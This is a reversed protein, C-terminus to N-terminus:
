RPYLRPPSWLVGYTLVKTDGPLLQPTGSRISGFSFATFLSFNGYFRYRLDSAVYKGNTAPNGPLERYYGFGNSWSIRASVAVGISADVRDSRQVSVFNYFALGRSYALTASIKDSFTKLLTLGGNVGWGTGQQLGSHNQNVAGVNASLWFTRALQESYFLGATNYKTNISGPPQSQKQDSYQFSYSVGVSRRPTLAHSLSIDGEYANGDTQYAISNNITRSYHSQGSFSISTRPTLAYQFGASGTNSIFNGNTTFFNNQSISGIRSDSALYNLPILPNSHTQVFSDSLTLSLRPTLALTTGLSLTNNMAANAHIEGDYVAMQPMYQLVIRSKDRYLSHDFMLGTRFIALNTSATNSTASSDFDNHIGIYEFTFISFSGWRLPTKSTGVLPLGTGVDKISLTSAGPPGQQNPQEADTAEDADPAWPPTIAAPKPQEEKKTGSVSDQQAKVSTPLLPLVLAVGVSAVFIKSIWIM